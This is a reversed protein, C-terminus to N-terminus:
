IKGGTKEYVIERTLKPSAMREIEIHVLAMYIGPRLAQSSDIFIWRGPNVSGIFGAEEQDQPVSIHGGMDECHDKADAIVKQDGVPLYCANNM